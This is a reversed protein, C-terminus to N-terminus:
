PIGDGSVIQVDDEDDEEESDSLGESAQVLRRLEEVKDETTSHDEEREAVEAATAAVAAGSPDRYHVFKCKERRACVGAYCMRGTTNATREYGEPLVFNPDAVHAFHCTAGLNCRALQFHRCPRTRWPRPQAVAVAGQPIVLTHLFTCSSGRHCGAQSNFFKCPLTRTVTPSHTPTDSDSSSAPDSNATPLVHLSYM